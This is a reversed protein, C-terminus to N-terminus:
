SECSRVEILAPPNGAPRTPLRGEGADRGWSRMSPSWTTAVPELGQAIRPLAGFTAMSRVLDTASLVGVPSEGDTSVVVLRHVRRAEMLQAAQRVPTDITVTLGPQSMIHRACLRTWDSWLEDSARVRVLDLQSIVGVLFGDPDVVPVGGIGFRDLTAAVESVPTDPWVVIPEASMLEGVTVDDARTRIPSGSQPDVNM